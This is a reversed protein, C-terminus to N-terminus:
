NILTLSFRMEQALKQPLLPEVGSLMSILARNIFLNGVWYDRLYSNTHPLLRIQDEALGSTSPSVHKIEWLARNTLPPNNLNDWM